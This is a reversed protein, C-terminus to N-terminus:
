RGGCGAMQLQQLTDAIAMLRETDGAAQAAEARKGLAELEAQHTQLNRTMCANVGSQPNPSPATAPAAAAPPAPKQARASPEDQIGLLPKLEAAKAAVASKETPSAGGPPTAGRLIADAREKVMALEDRSLGSGEIEQKEARADVDRQAEYYDKPQEPRKVICSPDQMAMASDQYIEVLRPDPKAQAAVMKDVLASYKDMVKQNGAMRQPFTQQAAQCKAEAEKYAAAGQTYRGYPTDERAAAAREAQGAKLGALLQDVVDQTLVIMGGAGGPGAANGSEAPKAAADGTAADAAKSAGEQGAARKLRKKLGGFQAWSPTTMGLALVAVAAVRAAIAVRRCPSRM